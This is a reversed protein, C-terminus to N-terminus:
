VSFTWLNFAFALSDAKDNVTGSKALRSNDLFARSTFELYDFLPFHEKRVSVQIPRFRRYRAHPMWIHDDESYSRILELIINVSVSVPGYLPDDFMEDWARSLFSLPMPMCYGCSCMRSETWETFINSTPYVPFHDYISYYNGLSETWYYPNSDGNSTGSDVEADGTLAALDADADEATIEFDAEPVGFFPSLTEIGTASDDNTNSSYIDLLLAQSKKGLQNDTESARTDLASAPQDDPLSVTPRSPSVQSPRNKLDSISPNYLSGMSHLNMQGHPQKDDNVKPQSSNGNTAECIEIGQTFRM